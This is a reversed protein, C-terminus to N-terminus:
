LNSPPYKKRFRVGLQYAASNVADLADGIGDYGSIFASGVFEPVDIGTLASLFRRLEGYGEWGLVSIPCCCGSSRSGFRRAVLKGGNALFEDVKKTLLEELKIIYDPDYQKNDM